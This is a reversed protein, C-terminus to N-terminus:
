ISCFEHNKRKAEVYVAHAEAPTAYYGLNKTKGNFRIQAVWKGTQKNLSTGLLGSMSDKHAKRINQLNRTQDALRLNSLANNGRDGDIHDVGHPPWVGTTYLMVLRHAKYLHGNLRILVCGDKHFCGAQHGAIARAGRTIAWTFVGTEPNYNLLERLQQATLDRAAM